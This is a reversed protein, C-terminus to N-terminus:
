EESKLKPDTEQSKRGNTFIAKLDLEADMKVSRTIQSAADKISLARSALLLAAVAAVKPTAVSTSKLTVITPEGNESLRWQRCESAIKVDVLPGFNSRHYDSAGVKILNPAQLCTPVYPCTEGAILRRKDNGAANIVLLQDQYRALLKQMRKKPWRSEIDSLSLVVIRANQEAAFQFAQELRSFPVKGGMLENKTGIRIPLVSAEPLLGVMGFRNDKAALELTIGTGHFLDDWLGASKSDVALNASRTSEWPVTVGEKEALVQDLGSDIIAILPFSRPWPMSDRLALFAKRFPCPCSSIEDQSVSLHKTKRGWFFLGLIVAVSLPIVLKWRRGVHM